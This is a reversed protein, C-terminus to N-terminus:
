ANKGRSAPTPIAQRSGIDGTIPSSIHSRQTHPNVKRAAMDEVNRQRLLSVTITNSMSLVMRLSIPSVEIRLVPSELQLDSILAQLYNTKNPSRALQGGSKVLTLVMPQEAVSCHAAELRDLSIWASHLHPLIAMV